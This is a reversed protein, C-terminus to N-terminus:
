ELGDIHKIVDKRIKVINETNLIKRVRNMASEEDVEDVVRMVDQSSLLEEDVLSRVERLGTEIMSLQNDVENGLAAISDQGESKVIGDIRSTIRSVSSSGKLSEVKTAAELAFMLTERLLVATQDSNMEWSNIQENKLGNIQAYVLGGDEDERRLEKDITDKYGWAKLTEHSARQKGLLLTVTKRCREITETNSSPEHNTAEEGGSVKPM